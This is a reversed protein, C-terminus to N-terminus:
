EEGKTVGWSPQQITKGKGDNGRPTHRREVGVAGSMGGVGEMGADIQCFPLVTGDQFRLSLQDSLNDQGIPQNDQFLRRAEAIFHDLTAEDTEDGILMNQKVYDFVDVPTTNESTGDVPLGQETPDAM